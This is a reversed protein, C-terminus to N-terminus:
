LINQVQERAKEAEFKIDIVNKSIQSDSCKAGITNIERFFEQLIFDLKKGKEHGPADLYKEFNEIHNKSRVLEEHIDIKELQSFIVLQANENIKVDLDPVNKLDEILRERRESTVHPARKEIESLFLKISKSREKLDNYLVKGEALRENNLDLILADFIKLIETVLSDDALEEPVELVYPLKIVDNLTLTGQLNFDGQLAKAADLYGKAVNKSISINSILDSLNSLYISCFVNGRILTEKIKKSLRTELHTLQFPMKFNIEFFKSNLSKLIITVNIRKGSKTQLSTIVSSFGTMSFIM